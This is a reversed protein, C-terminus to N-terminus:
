ASRRCMPWPHSRLVLRLRPAVSKDKLDSEECTEPISGPADYPKRMEAPTIGALQRLIRLSATLEPTEYDDLNYAALRFFTIADEKCPRKIRTSQLYIARPSWAEERAGYRHNYAKANAHHYEGIALVADAIIKGRLACDPMSDRVLALVNGLVVADFLITSM